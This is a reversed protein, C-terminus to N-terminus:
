NFLILQYQHFFKTFISPTVMISCISEFHKCGMNLIPFQKLRPLPGSLGSPYNFDRIKFKIETKALDLNKEGYGEMM